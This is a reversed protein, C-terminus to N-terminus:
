DVQRKQVVLQLKYETKYVKNDVSFEGGVLFLGLSKISQGHTDVRGVLKLNDLSTGIFVAYYRKDNDRKLSYYPFLTNKPILYSNHAQYDKDVVISNSNILREVMKQIELDFTPIYQIPLIEQDVSLSSSKSNTRTPEMDHNFMEDPMKKALLQTIDFLTNKNLFYYMFNLIWFYIILVFAFVYLIYLTNISNRMDILSKLLFGIPLISVIVYARNLYKSNINLYSLIKNIEDLITIM